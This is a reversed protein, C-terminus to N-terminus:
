DRQLEIFVSRTDKVPVEMTSKCSPSNAKVLFSHLHQGQENKYTVRWTLSKGKGNMIYIQAQNAQNIALDFWTWQGGLNLNKKAGFLGAGVDYSAPIELEPWFGNTSMGFNADACPYQPHLDFGVGSNATTGSDGNQRRPMSGAFTLPLLPILAALALSFRM